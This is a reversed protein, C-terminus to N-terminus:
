FACAATFAPNKNLNSLLPFTKSFGFMMNPPICGSKTLSNINHNM